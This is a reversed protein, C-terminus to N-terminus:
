LPWRGTFSLGPRNPCSPGEVTNLTGGDPGPSVSALTLAMVESALQTSNPQGAPSLASGGGSQGGKGCWSCTHPHGDVRVGRRSAVFELTRMVGEPETIHQFSESSLFAGSMQIVAFPPWDSVIPHHPGGPNGVPLKRGGRGTSPSHTGEGAGPHTVCSSCKQAPLQGLGGSAADSPSREVPM